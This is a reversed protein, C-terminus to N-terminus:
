GTTGLGPIQGPEPTIEPNSPLPVVNGRVAQDQAVSDPVVQVKFRQINKLGALQAVWAFIRSLDYGAALEPSKSLQAMIQTWLNAQAFRDIPMAGDVPEFDYFGSIAEPTVNIFQQGAEQVLDGVIRFKRDLDYYQQSNQVLMQSHPAFGMASFFETNTKLRNISFTNSSRTEAATRRGGQIPIGMIQDNVGVIRQAYTHLTEMDSLHSKTVDFFPLQEIADGPKTGYGKPKMRVVNGPRPDLLDKMVIRSPDVAVQVNLAKRVNYFHSNILWDMTRQIPDLIETMSRANFGYGEPEYQIIDFPFRDHIAGQPRASIILTIDSDVTFTWKEPLKSKGVGWDTPILEITYEYLGHFNVGSGKREPGTKGIKNDLETEQIDPVDLEDSGQDFNTDRRTKRKLQETNIYIGLVQRRIIENWGLESYVGCYEGEQFRHMPVRPDPFWNYPRVNYVKNGHYGPVISTTKVKRTRGTPIVGLLMQEREEVTSIVADEEAWYSGLVGIGYKGPDLLWIYYPVLMQGVQVQYNILAELAQTQQEGEGHRGSYQHIPTRGLFVTTWYTHATMLMAYSYPLVMTTYQPNGTQERQNRRRADVDKEPLYARVKEEELRWRNHFDQMKTQSFRHREKIETILRKHHDSKPDVNISLSPM